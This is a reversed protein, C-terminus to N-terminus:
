RTAKGNVIEKVMAAAEQFLSWSDLKFATDCVNLWRMVREYRPDEATIGYTAQALERWEELWEKSNRPAPKSEISNKGTIRDLAGQILNEEKM